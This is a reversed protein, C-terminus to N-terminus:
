AQPSSGPRREPGSGHPGHSRIRRKAKGALTAASQEGDAQVDAQTPEVGCVPREVGLLLASMLGCLTQRNSASEM